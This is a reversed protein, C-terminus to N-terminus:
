STALNDGISGRAAFDLADSSQCHDGFDLLYILRKCSATVRESISIKHLCKWTNVAAM